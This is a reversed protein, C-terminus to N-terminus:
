ASFLDLIALCPKLRFLGLQLRPSWVCTKYVRKLFQVKGWPCPFASHHTQAPSGGPLKKNVFNEEPLQIATLSFIWLHPAFQILFTATPVSLRPHIAIQIHLQNYNVSRQTPLLLFLILNSSQCSTPHQCGKNFHSTCKLSNSSDFTSLIGSNFVLHPLSHLQHVGNRKVEMKWTKWVDGEVRVREALSKWITVSYWREEEGM